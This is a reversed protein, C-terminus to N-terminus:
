KVDPLAEAGILTEHVSVRPHKRALENLVPQMHPLPEFCVISTQPWVALCATAFDGRYAGVDFITKPQFGQDRLRALARPIEPFDFREALWRRVASRLMAIQRM